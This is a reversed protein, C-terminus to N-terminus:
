RTTDYPMTERLRVLVRLLRKRVAAESKGIVAAVERLSLGRSYRLTLVMADAPRLQALCDALWQLRALEQHTHTQTLLTQEPTEAAAAHVRSRIEAVFERTIAARRGRNRFAQLCKKAAIGFLWARLEGAEPRFRPLSSWAAVFVEQAVEEGAGDGLRRICYHRIAAAHAQMLATVVAARDDEDRLRQPDIEM